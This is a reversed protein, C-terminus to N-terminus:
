NAVKKFPIRTFLKSKSLSFILLAVWIFLFSIFHVQTFTEQYFFVGLILMITPAIYQLFGIMSLPIRRVGTAFLLLPVATAIGSGMLLLTTMLSSGMATTGTQNFSYFLYLLAFPTVVLTEITMGVISGLQVLKKFLGYLAFTFALIFAIWPFSGFNLVLNFVGIAAIVISVVQWKTLKEKLFVIGLIVSILPNIYYGLSTEVIHDHSVAWIFVFWNLSIILSASIVALLQKKDLILHKLDKFGNRLNKTFFLLIIMFALSWVIRHALVEESSVNQFLKWYMPLIGWLGYAGLASMVGISYENSHKNM